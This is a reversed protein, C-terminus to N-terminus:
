RLLVMKRCASLGEGELRYLYVGSALASADFGLHHEGATMNGDALTAVTEGLLNFASSM